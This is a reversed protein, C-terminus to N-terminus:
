MRRWNNWMELVSEILTGLRVVYIVSAHNVTIEALMPSDVDLEVYVRAYSLRRKEKTALDLTIPKGVVSAVITLGAETWLEMPIKGLRIWVPVSNFGFSELIIGLTWKEILM